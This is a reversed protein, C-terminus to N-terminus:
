RLQHEEAPLHRTSREVAQFTRKLVDYPQVPDEPQNEVGRRVELEARNLFDEVKAPTLAKPPDEAVSEFLGMPREPSWGVILLRREIAADVIETPWMESAREYTKIRRYATRETFPLDRLWRFFLKYRQLISRVLVIRKGTDLECIEHDSLIKYERLVIEQQDQTM